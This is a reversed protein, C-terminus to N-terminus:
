FCPKIVQMRAVVRDCQFQKAKAAGRSRYCLPMNIGRLGGPRMRM